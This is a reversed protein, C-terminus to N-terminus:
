HPLRPPYEPRILPPLSRPESGNADADRYSDLAGLMADLVEPAVEEDPLRAVAGLEFSKARAPDGAMFAVAASTHFCEWCDPAAERARRSFDVAGSVDGTLLHYIAVANLQRGTHALDDLREMVEELHMEREEKWWLSKAGDDLFVSALAFLYRPEKPKVHRAEWYFGAAQILKGQRANLRGIWYSVEPDGPAAQRAQDLRDKAREYGPGDFDDLKAWLVLTEAETLRRVDLRSLPPAAHRHRQRWPIPKELYAAFDRDLQEAPVQALIQQLEDGPNQLRARQGFAARFRV